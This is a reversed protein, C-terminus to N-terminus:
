VGVSRDSSGVRHADLVPWSILVYEEWCLCRLIPVTSLLLEPIAKGKPQVQHPARTLWRFATESFHLLRESTVLRFKQSPRSATGGM